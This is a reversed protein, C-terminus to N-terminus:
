ETSQRDDPLGSDASEHTEFIRVDEEAVQKPARLCSVDPGCHGCNSHRRAGGEVLTASHCDSCKSLAVYEEKMVGLALQIAHEIDLAAYPQWERFAELAECLLEGRELGPIQDTTRGSGAAPIAGLIRCLCAFLTAESRLRRSRFFTHFASPCPGRLREKPDFGWRRRQTVLQDRTLGSWAMVTRTRAGHSMMRLALQYRRFYRGMRDDTVHIQM